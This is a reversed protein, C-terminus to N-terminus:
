QLRGEVVASVDDYALQSIEHRREIDALQGKTLNPRCLARVTDRRRQDLLFWNLFIDDAPDIDSM